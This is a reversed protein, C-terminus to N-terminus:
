QPRYHIAMAPEFQNLENSKADLHGKVAQLAGELSSLEDSLDQRNLTQQKLKLNLAKIKQQAERLQDSLALFDNKTKLLLKEKDFLQDQVFKLRTAIESFDIDKDKLATYTDLLRGKYIDLFGKLEALAEDKTETVRKVDQHASELFEIKEEKDKIIKQNLRVREQLDSLNGQLVAVDQKKNEVINQSLAVIEEDPNTSKAAALHVPSIEGSKLGAYCDQAQRLQDALQERQALLNNRASEVIDPSNTLTSIGGTEAVNPRPPIEGGLRGIEARFFNVRQGLNQNYVILDDITVLNLKDIASLNDLSIFQELKQVVAPSTADFLVAKLLDEVAEHPHKSQLHYDCQELLTTILKQSTEPSALLTPVFLLSLVVALSYIRKM